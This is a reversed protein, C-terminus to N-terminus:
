QYKDMYKKNRYLKYQMDGYLMYKEEKIKIKPKNYYYKTKILVIYLNHKKSYDIDFKTVIDYCLIYKAELSKINKYIERDTNNKKTMTIIENYGDTSNKMLMEKTYIKNVNNTPITENEIAYENDSFSDNHYVHIISNIDFDEFGYVIYDHPNKFLELHFEDIISCSCAGQNNSLMYNYTLNSEHKYVGSAHVMTFFEEGQLTYIEVGHKMSLNTDLNKLLNKRKLLSEKLLTYSINKCTRIDNYLIESLNIKKTKKYLNILEISSLNNINLTTIYLNHINKNIIKNNIELEFNIIENINMVVNPYIDQYLKDIIIDKLYQNTLKQLTKKITYYKENYPKNKSLENNISIAIEYLNHHKLIEIYPNTKKNLNDLIKSYIGILGTDKNYSNIINNYYNTRAIEITATDIKKTLNNVITRYCDIDIIESILNIFKTNDLYKCKDIDVTNLYGNLYKIPLEQLQNITLVDM